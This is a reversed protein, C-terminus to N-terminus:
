HLVPNLRPHGLLPGGPAPRHQALRPHHQSRRAPGRGPAARPPRQEPPDAGARRRRRRARHGQPRHEPHGHSGPRAARPLHSPGGRPRGAPPRPHRHTDRRPRRPPRAPLGPRHPRAAARRGHHQPERHTDAPDRPLARAPRARGALHRQRLGRRAPRAPGSEVPAAHAGGAAGWRPPGSGNGAHARAHRRRAPLPLRKGARRGPPGRGQRDAAPRRAPRARVPDRGRCRPSPERLARGALAVLLRNRRGRAPAPLLPHLLAAGDRRGLERGHRRAPRVPAAHADPAHM